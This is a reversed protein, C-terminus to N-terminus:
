EKDAPSRLSRQWPQWGFVMSTAGVGSSCIMTVILLVAATGGGGTWAVRFVGSTLIVAVCIWIAITATLRASFDSFTIGPTALMRHAVPVLVGFVGLMMLGTGIGATTAAMLHQERNQYDSLGQAIAAMDTMSVAPELKSSFASLGAGLSILFVSFLLIATRMM